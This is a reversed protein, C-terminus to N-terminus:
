VSITLTVQFASGNKRAFFCSQILLLKGYFWDMLCSLISSWLRCMLSFRVIFVCYFIGPLMQPVVKMVTKLIETLVSVHIKVSIWFGTSFFLVSCDDLSSFFFFFFAPLEGEKLLYESTATVTSM